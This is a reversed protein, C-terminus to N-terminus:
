LLSPTVTDVGRRLIQGPRAGTYAGDRVIESGSVFVHSVGTSGAYLRGGGGPLDYRSYLPETGVTDPDFVVVDARCGPVLRGRDHLGYLDAPVSTMLAIIEHLPIPAVGRCSAGLLYTPYDFMGLMDLHAGADSGGIVANPNRIMACLKAWQAEDPEPPVSGYSTLLRDEVVIDLLADFASKSQERAIDGVVRGEFRKNEASATEYITYSEWNTFQYGSAEPSKASRDLHERVSPNRLAEIRANPALGMTQQWGPICDLMFATHFNMRFGGSKPMVLGVVKGGAARAQDGVSLKSEAFELEVRPQVINWNVPRRADVSVAVLLDREDPKYADGPFNAIFEISTGAFEGVVRALARIEDPGAVLSPVPASTDDLHSPSWSSSLGIVGSALATRLERKMAELEADTPDRRENADPGM